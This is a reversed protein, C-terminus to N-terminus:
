AGPDGRMQGSTWAGAERMFARGDPAELLVPLVRELTQAQRTLSRIMGTATQASDAASQAPRGTNVLLRYLPVHLRPRNGDDFFINTDVTNNREDIVVWIAWPRLHYGAYSDESVDPGTFGFKEVLFAVLRTAAAPFAKLRADVVM